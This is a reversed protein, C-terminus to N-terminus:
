LAAKQKKADSNVLIRQDRGPPGPRPHGRLQGMPTPHIGHDENPIGLAAVPTVGQSRAYQIARQRVAHRFTRQVPDNACKFETSEQLENDDVFFSMNIVEFKQDGAYTIGDM